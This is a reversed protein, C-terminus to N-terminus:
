GGCVAMRGGERRPLGSIGDAEGCSGIVASIHARKGTRKNKRCSGMYRIRLVAM